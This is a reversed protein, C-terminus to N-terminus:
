DGPLLALMRLRAAALPETPVPALTIVERAATLKQAPTLDARAFLTVLAAFTPQYLTQEGITLTAYEARLGARIAEIPHLAFATGDFVIRAGPHARRLDDLAAFQEPTLAVRTEGQALPEEHTFPGRFSQDAIVIISNEPAALAAVTFLLLILLARM